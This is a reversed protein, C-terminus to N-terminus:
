IYGDAFLMAKCGAHCVIWHFVSGDNRVVNDILRVYYDEDPQNCVGGRGNKSWEVTGDIGEVAQDLEM